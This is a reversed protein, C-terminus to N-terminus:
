FIPFIGQVIELNKFNNKFNSNNKIIIFKTVYFIQCNKGFSISFITLNVNSFLFLLTKNLFFFDTIISLHSYSSNKKFFIIKFNKM